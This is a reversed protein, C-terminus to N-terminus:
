EDTEAQWCRQFHARAFHAQRWITGQSVGILLAIESASLGEMEYLVFVERLKLPMAAVVVAVRTAVRRQEVLEDAGDAAERTASFKVKLRARRAFSRREHAVLHVCTRYLWTRMGTPDTLRDRREWAILFCQQLIDEVPAGPGLLRSVSRSLFPAHERFLSEMAVASLPTTEVRFFSM